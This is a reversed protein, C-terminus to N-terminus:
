EINSPWVWGMAKLKAYESYRHVFAIGNNYDMAHGEKLWFLQVFPLQTGYVYAFIHLFSSCYCLIRASIAIIRSSMYHLCMRNNKKHPNLELTSHLVDLTTSPIFCYHVADVVIASEARHLQQTHLYAAFAKPSLECVWSIMRFHSSIRMSNSLNCGQWYFIPAMVSSSIGM